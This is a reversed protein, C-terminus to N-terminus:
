IRPGPKGANWITGLMMLDGQCASCLPSTPTPILEEELPVGRWGSHQLTRSPIFLQPLQDKSTPEKCTYLQHRESLAEKELNCICHQCLHSAPLDAYWSLLHVHIYMYTYTHPSCLSGLLVASLPAACYSTQARSSVM